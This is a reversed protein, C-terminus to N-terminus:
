APDATSTTNQPVRVINLSNRLGKPLTEDDALDPMCVITIIDDGGAEKLYTTDWLVRSVTTANTVEPSLKIIVVAPDPRPAPDRRRWPRLRPRPLRFRPRLVDRMYRAIMSLSVTENLGLEECIISKLPRDDAVPFKYVNKQRGQFLDDLLRDQVDGNTPDIIALTMRRKNEKVAKVVTTRTDDDPWPVVSKSLEPPRNSARRVRGRNNRPDDDLAEVAWKAAIVGGAVGIVGDGVTGFDGIVGLWQLFDITVLVLLSFRLVNLPLPPCLLSVIRLIGITVAKVVEFTKTCADDIFEVGRAVIAGPRRLSPAEVSASALLAVRGRSIPRSVPAPLVVHPTSQFAHLSSLAAVLITGRM